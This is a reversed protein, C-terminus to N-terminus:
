RSMCESDPGPSRPLPEALTPKPNTRPAPATRGARVVKSSSTTPLPADFVATLVIHATNPNAGDRTNWSNRERIETRRGVRHTSGEATVQIAVACHKAIGVEAWARSLPASRETGRVDTVMSTREVTLTRLGVGAVLSMVLRGFASSWGM